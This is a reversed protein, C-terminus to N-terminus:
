AASFGERFVDAVSVASGSRDWDHVEWGEERAVRALTADPRVAHGAGVCRLLALDAKSDGYAVSGALDLGQEESLARIRRAKAEGALPEDALRGTFRRGGGPGVEGEELAAAIM